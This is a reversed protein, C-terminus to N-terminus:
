ITLEQEEKLDKGMQVIQSVVMLVLGMVLLMWNCDSNFVIDYHALRVNSRFYLTICLSFIWQGVYSLSLLLGIKELYQSVDAIFVEGRRIKNIVRFILVLMVVWLAVLACAGVGLLIHCTRTVQSMSHPLTIMAKRIEVLCSQGERTSILSRDLEHSKVYLPFRSLTKYLPRGSVTDVEYYDARPISDLFEMKEGPFERDHGVEMANFPISVLWLVITAVLLSSYLKLKRNM